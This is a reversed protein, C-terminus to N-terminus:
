KLAILQDLAMGWGKEFGMKEHVEKDAETRHMVTARYIAGDSTPQFEIVATFAFGDTTIAAPRFEPLLVGTWVLRREHVIELYCGLNEQREGNPGQMINFFRGGPRLEIECDTVKWPLPCFWRKLTEPDTWGRWLHSVSCNVKREFLLDLKPNFPM